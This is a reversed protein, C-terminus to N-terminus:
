RFDTEVQEGTEVQGNDSAKKLNLSRFSRVKRADFGNGTTEAGFKNDRRPEQLGVSGRTHEPDM